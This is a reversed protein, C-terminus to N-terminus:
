GRHGVAAIFRRRKNVDLRPVQLRFKHWLYLVLIAGLISVILGGPHFRGGASPPYFLHTVAGGIISGVIGLVVTWTISLHTHMLAKAVCGALFGVIVYWILHLMIKETSDQSNQFDVRLLILRGALQFGRL